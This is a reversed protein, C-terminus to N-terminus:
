TAAIRQELERKRSKADGYGVSEMGEKLTNASHLRNTMVAIDCWACTSGCISHTCVGLAREVVFAMYFLLVRTIPGM